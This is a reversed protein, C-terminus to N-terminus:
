SAGGDLQAKFDAIGLSVVLNGADDLFDYIADKVERNSFFVIADQDGGGDLHPDGNGATSVYSGIPRVEKLEGDPHFIRLEGQLVLTIYPVRHQHLMSKQNAALKFIVDVIRNEEDVKCVHFAVHDLWEITRWTINRDDFVTALM